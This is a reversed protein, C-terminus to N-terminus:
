FNEKYLQYDRERKNMCQTVQTLGGDPNLSKVVSSGGGGGGFKCTNM